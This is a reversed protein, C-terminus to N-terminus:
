RAGAGAKGAARLVRCRERWARLRPGTPTPGAMTSAVDPLDSQLSKLIGCWRKATAEDAPQTPPLGSELAQVAAPTVGAPLTAAILAKEEPHGGAQLYTHLRARRHADLPHDRWLGAIFTDAEDGLRTELRARVGLAQRGAFFDRPALYEVRPERERLTRDFGQCLADVTAPGCMQGVLLEELGMPISHRKHSALEARVSPASFAREAAVLDLAPPGTFAVLGLDGVDLRFVVVAEFSGRLTCIIDRLVDDALEYVHIWQVLVGGPRLRSRVREFHEATYLDAVGAVWPNSPESIILDFSAPPTAQLVDRADAVVVEVRERSLVDGNYPGFLRAVEVVAPSLEAVKVRADPHSVAAAATQGTGLGVIFVERAQPRFLFGLHGLVVQTAADEQSGDTKGNTRFILNGSPYLEVSITADKGDERFVTRGSTVAEVHADLQEIQPIRLRFLGRALLSADPSVATFLIVGALAVLGPAMLRRATLPRPLCLTAVVVSGAAGALLVREVGLLPMLAFGSAMAGLLNGATNAGLIWATARDARTGSAHAGTLLAPFAAGLAVAGPLYHLATWGGGLLLWVSYNDASAVMRSRMVLLELPLIDLRLVLGAAAVAAALQSVVLVAGPRAGRGLAWSALGSGISIGAIVVCLMMAFAYVSAGLLLSSLRTWVVESGLTVFGTLAAAWLWARLPAVDAAPLAPTGNAASPRADGPAEVSGAAPAATPAATAVAAPRDAARAAMSTGRFALWVAGAVALNLAATMRLPQEVGFREILWFGAALAGAAAGAANVWYYRSVLAVARAPAAREVCAALVPLTAGMLMALPLVLLAACGLRLAVFAMSTPGLGMAVDAYASFLPDAISPLALAWLGIGAELAAWAIMPQALRALPGAALRGALLAGAALGGLFAGLTIAQSAGSSGLYLALYRGLVVEYILGAAGTLLLLLPIVRTLM